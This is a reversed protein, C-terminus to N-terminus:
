GWGPRRQLQYVSHARQHGHGLLNCGHCSQCLQTVLMKSVMWRGNGTPEIGIWTTKGSQEEAECPIYFDESLQTILDNETNSLPISVSGDLIHILSKNQILSSCSSVWWQAFPQELSWPDEKQSCTTTKVLFILAFTVQIWIRKWSWVLIGDQEKQTGIWSM